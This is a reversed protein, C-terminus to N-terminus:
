IRRLASVLARTAPQKMEPRKTILSSLRQREERTGGLDYLWAALKMARRQEEDPTDAGAGDSDWRGYHFSRTVKDQGNAILFIFGAPASVNKITADPVLDLWTQNQQWRWTNPSNKKRTTLGIIKLRRQVANWDTGDEAAMRHLVKVLAEMTGGYAVMDVLATPRDATAIRAPSLGRAELAERLGSFKHTPISGAEGQGIWRMSFPVLNLSPVSELDSFCGCLYDYFNEPSRGIFALDAGDSMALIRAAASRLADIDERHPKYFGPVDEIWSGLQERKDFSWRFPTTM